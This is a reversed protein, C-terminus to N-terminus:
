IKKRKKQSFADFGLAGNSVGGHQDFSAIDVGNGPSLNKKLDNVYFDM